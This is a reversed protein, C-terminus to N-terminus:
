LRVVDMKTARPTSASRAWRGCALSMSGFMWASTLWYAENWPSVFTSGKETAASPTM